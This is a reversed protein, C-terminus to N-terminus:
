PDPSPTSFEVLADHSWSADEIPASVSKKQQGEYLTLRRAGDVLVARTFPQAAVAPRGNRNRSDCWDMGGAANLALTFMLGLHKKAIAQDVQCALRLDGLRAVNEPLGPTRIDALPITRADFTARLRDIVIDANDDEARPNVDLTFRGDLTRVFPAHWEKAVLHMSAGALGVDGQQARLRFYLPAEPAMARHREFAALGRALTRYPWAVVKQGPVVIVPLDADAQRGSAAGSLLLCSLVFALIPFVGPM